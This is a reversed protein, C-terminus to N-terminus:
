AKEKSKVAEKVLSNAAERLEKSRAIAEEAKAKHEEQKKLIKKQDIQKDAKPAKNKSSCPCEDASQMKAKIEEASEKVKVEKENIVTSSTTTFNQQETEEKYDDKLPIEEEKTITQFKEWAGSEITETKLSSEWNSTTETTMDMGQLPDEKNKVEATAVTANSNPASVQMLGQTNNQNNLPSVVHMLSQAVKREAPCSSNQLSQVFSKLHVVGYQKELAATMEAKEKEVERDIEEDLAKDDHEKNLPVVPHFSSSSANVPALPLAHLDSPLLKTAPARAQSSANAPTNQVVATTNGGLAVGFLSVLISRKM